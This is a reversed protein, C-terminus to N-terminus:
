EMLDSAKARRGAEAFADIIYSIEKRKNMAKGLVKTGREAVESPAYIVREGVKFKTKTGGYAIQMIIKTSYSHVLDTLKQYEKIFSDM